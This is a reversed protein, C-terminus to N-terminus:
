ADCTDKSFPLERPKRTKNRQKNKNNNEEQRVKHGLTKTKRHQLPQKALSV